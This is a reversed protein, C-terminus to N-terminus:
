LGQFRRCDLWRGLKIAFDDAGECLIYKKGRHCTVVPLQYQLLFVPVGASECLHSMGSDVGVFFAALAATAVSKSAGLHKGIPALPLGYRACTALIKAIDGTPPNKLEPTSLGDFQCVAYPSRHHWHWQLKTPWPDAAWVDYGSLPTDGPRQVSEISTPELVGLIADHTPGLDRGNQLRSLSVPGTIVARRALLSITAWQDGFGENWPIFTTM